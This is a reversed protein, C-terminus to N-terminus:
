ERKERRTFVPGRDSAVEGIERQSDSQVQESAAQALVGGPLPRLDQGRRVRRSSLGESGRPSGTGLEYQQHVM